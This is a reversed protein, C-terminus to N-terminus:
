HRQSLEAISPRRRERRKVGCRQAEANFGGASVDREGEVERTAMLCSCYVLTEPKVRLDFSKAKRLAWRRAESGRRQLGGGVCRARRWGGLPWGVPARLWHRQSLEAISDRRREGRVGGRRQAEANFFGAGM